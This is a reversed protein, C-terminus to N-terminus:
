DIKEKEKQDREACFKRFAEQTTVPNGRSSFNVLYSQYTFPRERDPAAMKDVVDQAKQETAYTTFFWGAKPVPVPKCYIGWTGQVEANFKGGECKIVFFDFGAHTRYPVPESLERRYQEASITAIADFTELTNWVATNLTSDPACAELIKQLAEGVTILGDNFHQLTENVKEITM